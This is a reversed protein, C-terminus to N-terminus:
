FDADDMLKTILGDNAEELVAIKLSQENIAELLFELTLRLHAVDLNVSLMTDLKVPFSFKKGTKRGSTLFTEEAM